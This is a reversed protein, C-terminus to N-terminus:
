FSAGNNPRIAPRMRDAVKGDSRGRLSGLARAVFRVAMESAVEGAAHGGMGDAVVFIGRDPVMLFSDENGSRIIGVDTRGAATIHVPTTVPAVPPGPGGPGRIRPRAGRRECRVRAARSRAPGDGRPRVASGGEGAGRGRLNREHFRPGGAGMRRRATAAERPQDLGVSRAGRRRQLRCARLEGRSEKGRTAARGARRGAGPVDRTSAPFRSTLCRTPTAPRTSSATGGRGDWPSYAEI